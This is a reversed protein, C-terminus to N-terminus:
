RKFVLKFWFVRGPKQSGFQDYVRANSLNQAELSGSLDLKGLAISYILALTHTVQYPVVQKSERAGVSEWGRYFAHVYRVYYSLALEDGVLWLSRYKGNATGNAFLYPRSPLRDGEYRGYTGRDSTNRFDLYTFNGDLALYEAPSTWGANGEVGTARAAHVNQYASRMAAGLLLIQRDVNRLFGNVSGRYSGARQTPHDITLELNANHSHEPQLSLNESILAGNGFVEDPRPIRTTLEYSAKTYLTDTLRVRLADGVGFRSLKKDQEKYVNGPLRERADTRYVFHKAFLTNEIMDDFADVVYAVGSVMSFLSQRAHLPDRTGAPLLRDDGRRTTYTPTWTLSIRHHEGVRLTLLVRAFASQQDITQDYRRLNDTEGSQSLMRVREGLWNYRFRSKDSFGIPIYSYGSLAELRLREKFTQEYRLTAGHNARWSRAEGYPVTMIQNNQIENDLRMTFVRLLLREAWPKKVFGVELAAGEASYADHFRDVNRRAPRGSADAIDVEVPYDNKTRDGYLSLRTFLGSPKHVYYGSVGLRHTGFSGIQYYGNTGWGRTPQPTILNVVGGLADAGFRIPVVGRYVDVRELLLLPIDGVQQSYGALEMPVEDLFFRIQDDALGNLSFRTFSGLGGARRVGIGQVRALVEGLDASQKKASALEVVTVAASSERQQQAKSKDRVLVDVVGQPAGEVPLDTAPSAAPAAPETAPWPSAVAADHTDSAASPLTAGADLSSVVGGDLGVPAFPAQAQSTQSALLQGLALAVLMADYARKPGQKVSEGLM